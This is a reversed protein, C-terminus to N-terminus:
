VEVEELADADIKLQQRYADKLKAVYFEEPDFERTRPMSVWISHRGVISDDWESFMLKNKYTTIAERWNKRKWANHSECKVWGSEQLHQTMQEALVVNANKALDSQMKCAEHISGAKIDDKFWTGCHTTWGSKHLSKSMQAESTTRRELNRARGNAKALESREKRNRM